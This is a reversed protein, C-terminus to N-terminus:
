APSAPGARSASRPLPRLHKPNLRCLGLEALARRVRDFEGASSFFLETQLRPWNGYSITIISVPLPSPGCEMGKWESIEYQYWLSIGDGSTRFTNEDEILQALCREAQERTLVTGRDREIPAGMLKEYRAVTQATAQHGWLVIRSLYYREAAAVLFKGLLDRAKAVPM